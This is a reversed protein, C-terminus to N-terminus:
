GIDSRVLLLDSREPTIENVYYSSMPQRIRSRQGKILQYSHAGYPGICTVLNTGKRHGSIIDLESSKIVTIVYEM